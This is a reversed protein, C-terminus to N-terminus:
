REEQCVSISLLSCNCKLGSELGNIDKVLFVECASWPIVVVSM